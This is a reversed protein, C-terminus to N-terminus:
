ASKRRYPQKQREARERNVAIMMAGAIREIHSREDDSLENWPTAHYETHPHLEKAAIRIDVAYMHAEAAAARQKWYDAQEKAQQAEQLAVQLSVNETSDAQALLTDNSAELAQDIWHKHQLAEATGAQEVYPYAMLLAGRLTQMSLPQFGPMLAKFVTPLISPQANRQHLMMAICGIDEFTGPNGKSLQRVLLEALYAESCIDPHEWGHRGKTRSLALKEKLALAYRDAAADDRHAHQPLKKAQATM